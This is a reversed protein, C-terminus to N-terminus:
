HVLDRFQHRLSGRLDGVLELQDRLHIRSSILRLCDCLQNITQRLTLALLYKQANSTGALGERHRVDNLPQLARCQNKGM